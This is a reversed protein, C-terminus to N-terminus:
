HDWVCDVNINTRCSCPMLSYIVLLTKLFFLLCYSMFVFHICAFTKYINVDIALPPLQDAQHSWHSTVAPGWLGGVPGPHGPGRTLAGRWMVVMLTRSAQASFVPGTSCVCQGTLSGAAWNQPKYVM